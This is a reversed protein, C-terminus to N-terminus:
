KNEELMISRFRDIENRTVGLSKVYAEMKERWTRQPFNASFGEVLKNFRERHNFSPDGNCFGSAEWDKYLDEEDVGLLGNLIFALSGTRDQGAICHLVIPYNKEDCFIKFSKVFADKGAK